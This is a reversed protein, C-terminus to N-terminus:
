SYLFLYRFAESSLAFMAGLLLIDSNYKLLGTFFSGSFLHLKLFRLKMSRHLAKSLLLLLTMILELIFVIFTDIVFSRYLFLHKGIKNEFYQIRNLDSQTENALLSDVFPLSHIILILYRLISLFSVTWRSTPNHQFLQPPHSVTKSYLWHLSLSKTVLTTQFYISIKLLFFLHTVVIRAVHILVVM